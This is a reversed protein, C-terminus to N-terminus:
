KILHKYKEINNRLYEPFSEDIDVVTWFDDGFLSQCNNYKYELKSKFEETNLENHSFSEIKEKIFDLSNVYSFHWGADPLQRANENNRVEDITRIKIFKFPAANARSWNQKGVLCNLYYSYSDMCFSSLGETPVFNQLTEKRIVEDVDCVIILDDDKAGLEILANMIYNRQAKENDWPNGNNPMDEFVYNKIRYPLPDVYKLDKKKGSFTWTSEVLIHTVDLGSLEECRIELLEKEGNYTFCDYIM